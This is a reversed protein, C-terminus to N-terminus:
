KTKHKAPRLTIYAGKGSNRGYWEFGQGDIARVIWQGGNKHWGGFGADSQYAHLVRMLKNGKWGTIHKADGSLYATFPQSRDKIEDLEKLNVGEDSYFNGANDRAYNTTIGDREGIFTKGTAHCVLVKGVMSEVQM